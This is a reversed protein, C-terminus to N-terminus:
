QADAVAAAARQQQRQQETRQGQPVVRQARDRDAALRRRRGLEEVPDRDHERLRQARRQAVPRCVGGAHAVPARREDEAHQQQQRGRAVEPRPQRARQQEPDGEHQRARQARHEAIRQVLRQGVAAQREPAEVRRRDQEREDSQHQESGAVRRRVSASVLSHALTM